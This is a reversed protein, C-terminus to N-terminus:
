QQTSKGVITQQQMSNGATSKNTTYLNKNSHTAACWAFTMIRMQQTSTIAITQQAFTVIGM